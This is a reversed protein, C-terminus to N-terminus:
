SATPAIPPNSPGLKSIAKIAPVALVSQALLMYISSWTLNSLSEQTALGALGSLFIAVFQGLSQIAQRRSGIPTPDGM